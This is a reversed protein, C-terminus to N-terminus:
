IYNNKTNESSGTDTTKHTMLKSFNGTMIALSIEELVLFISNRRRSNVNHMHQMNQLQQVSRLYETRHTKKGTKKGKAKRNQCEELESISEAM